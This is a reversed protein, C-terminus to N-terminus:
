YNIEVNRLYPNNRKQLELETETLGLVTADILAYEILGKYTPNSFKDIKAYVYKIFVGDNKLFALVNEVESNDKSNIKVKTFYRYLQDKPVLIKDKHSVSIIKVLGSAKKEEITNSNNAILTILEGMAQMNDIALDDNLLIENVNAEIIKSTSSETTSSETTSSETTSSETTSSETPKIEERIKEEIKTSADKMNEKELKKQQIAYDSIEKKRAGKDSLLLLETYKDSEMNKNTHKIHHSEIATCVIDIDKYDGYMTKMIYKSITEHTHKTYFTQNKVVDDVLRGNAIKGIDHALSIILCKPYLFAFNNKEKEALHNYMIEVVDLTHDFLNVKALVEYELIGSLNVKDKYALDSDASFLMGVSSTNKGDVELFEYLDMVISLEKETFAKWHPRVYKKFFSLDSIKRDLIIDVFTVDDEEIKEKQKEMQSKLNFEINKEIEENELWSIAIKELEVYQIQCNRRLLLNRRYYKFQAYIIGIATLLLLLSAIPNNAIMLLIVDINFFIKGTAQFNLYSVGFVFIIGIWISILVIDGLRV